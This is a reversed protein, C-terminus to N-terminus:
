EVQGTKTRDALAAGKPGPFRTGPNKVKKEKKPMEVPPYAKLAVEQWEQSAQYKAQIPALLDNLAQAVIPKLLQPTL